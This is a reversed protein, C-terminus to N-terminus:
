TASQDAGTALGVVALAKHHFGARIIVLIITSESYKEKKIKLEYQHYRV